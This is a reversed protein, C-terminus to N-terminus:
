AHWFVGASGGSSGVRGGFQEGADARQDFRGAAGYRPTDIEHLHVGIELNPPVYNLKLLLPLLTRRVALGYELLQGFAQAGLKSAAKGDGVELEHPLEIHLVGGSYTLRQRVKKYRMKTYSDM